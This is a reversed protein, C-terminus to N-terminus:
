KPVARDLFEFVAAIDSTAGSESIGADRRTHFAHFELEPSVEVSAVELLDAWELLIGGDEMPFIGPEDLGVEAARALISRAADIASFVVPEGGSEGDLWGPALHALEVFRRSWAESDIELLEVSTLDKISRLEEGRFRLKGVVRVVAARTSSDLVSKLDATLEDGTYRGTVKGFRLTEITFSKVNANIAVLRGAVQGDETRLQVIAEEPEEPEKAAIIAQRATEFRSERTAGLITLRPQSERSERVVLSEYEDLSDGFQWFEDRDIWTRNVTPQFENEIISRFTAEVDEQGALFYESYSNRRVDLASVASGSELDVLDLLFSAEFDTPLDQGANAESWKQKAAAVILQRYRELEVLSTVPLRGGDFREGRMELRAFPTTGLRDMAEGEATVPAVM